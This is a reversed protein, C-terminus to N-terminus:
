WRLTANLLVRREIPPGATEVIHSQNLQAATLAVTLNETLAYAIRANLTVYNRVNIAALGVEESVFRYDLYSSQWRGQLDVEWKEHSYGLGGIVVHRPVARDYDAPSCVCYSENLSTHDDDAALAYSLNWRWGADNHGSLGIEAGFVLAYGTNGSFFAPNGLTDVGIPGGFPSSLVDDIRQAFVATRLTSSIVPLARDYDLEGSWIISPRLHPSGFYSEVGFVGSPLQFAQQLLSPMQVGRALSLRLTDLPTVKWVAGSNFSVADIHPAGYQAATFPSGAVPM